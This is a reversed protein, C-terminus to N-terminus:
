SRPPFIKVRRTRLSFPSYVRRLNRRALCFGRGSSEIGAQLESGTVSTETSCNSGLVEGNADVAVACIQVNITGSADAVRGALVFLDDNFFEWTFDSPGSEIM